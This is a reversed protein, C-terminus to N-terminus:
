RFKYRTSISGARGATNYGNALEYRRNFANDLRASVSWNETVALKGFVAALLYGGDNAPAGSVIDIDQRAGSLLLDTGIEGRGMRRSGSLTFSHKTRRLLQANNSLNKPNQASAQPAM